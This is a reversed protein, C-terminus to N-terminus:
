QKVEKFFFEISCEKVQGNPYKECYNVQSAIQHTFKDETEAQDIKNFWDAVVKQAQKKIVKTNDACQVQHLENLLASDGIVESTPKFVTGVITGEEDYHLTVIGIKLTKM